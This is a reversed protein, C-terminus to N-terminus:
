MKFLDSALVDEITARQDAVPHMMWRILDSIIRCETSDGHLTEVGQM